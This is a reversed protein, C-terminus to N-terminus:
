CRRLALNTGEAHVAAQVLAVPELAAHEAHMERHQLESYVVSCRQSKRLRYLSGHLMLPSASTCVQTEASADLEPVTETRDHAAEQQAAARLTSQEQLAREVALRGLEAAEKKREAALKECEAALKEREAAEKEREAALKEHEAAEKKREAALKEREAALKEREAAEKESEAALKEHEAAEKEREAAQRELEAALKERSLQVNEQQAAMYLTRFRTERQLANEKAQRECALQWAASDAVSDTVVETLRRQLCWLASVDASWM